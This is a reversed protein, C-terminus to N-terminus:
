NDGVGTSVSQLWLFESRYVADRGWNTYLLDTQDEGEEDFHSVARCLYCVERHRFSGSKMNMPFHGLQLSTPCFHLFDHPIVGIMLGNKAPDM